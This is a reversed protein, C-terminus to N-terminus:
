RYYQNAAGGIREALLGAADVAVGRIVGNGLDKGKALSEHACECVLTTYLGLTFPSFHEAREATGIKGNRFRLINTIIKGPCDM